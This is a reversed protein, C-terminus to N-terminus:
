VNKLPIISQTINPDFFSENSQILSSEDELRKFNAEM